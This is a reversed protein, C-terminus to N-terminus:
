EGEALLLRDRRRLRVDRRGGIQHLRGGGPADVETEVKDTEILM